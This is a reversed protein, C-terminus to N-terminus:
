QSTLEICRTRIELNQEFFSWTYLKQDTGLIPQDNTIMQHIANPLHHFIQGSLDGHSKHDREFTPSIFIFLNSLFISVSKSM